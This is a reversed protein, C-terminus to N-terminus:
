TKFRLRGARHLDKENGRQRRRRVALGQRSVHEAALEEISMPLQPRTAGDSKELTQLLAGADTKPHLM